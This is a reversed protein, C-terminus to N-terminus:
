RPANRSGRVPRDNSEGSSDGGILDPLKSVDIKEGGINWTTGPPYAGAVDKDGWVAVDSGAAKRTEEPTPM